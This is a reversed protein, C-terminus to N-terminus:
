PAEHCALSAVIGGQGSGAWGEGGADINSKIAQVLPENELTYLSTVTGARGARATRGVRHLFDIASTAFDAQCCSSLCAPPLLLLLVLACKLLEPCSSPLAMLRPTSPCCAAGLLGPYSALLPLLRM